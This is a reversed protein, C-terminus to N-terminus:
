RNQLPKQKEEEHPSCCCMRDFFSKKLSQQKNDLVDQRIKRIDFYIAVQNTIKSLHMATIATEKIRLIKCIKNPIECEQKGFQKFDMVCSLGNKEDFDWLLQYENNQVKISSCVTQLKNILTKM